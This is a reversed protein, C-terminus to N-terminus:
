HRQHEFCEEFFAQEASSRQHGVKGGLAKATEKAVQHIQHIRALSLSLSTLMVLLRQGLSLSSGQHVRQEEVRTVKADNDKFFGILLLM